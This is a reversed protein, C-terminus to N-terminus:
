KSKNEFIKATSDDSTTLVHNGDPFVSISLVEASHGTFVDLLTGAKVDCMYVAGDTAGVFVKNNSGSKMVTVACEIRAQHRLVFKGLQWVCLQGSLSGTIIVGLDNNFLAAEIETEGDLMVSGISRGDLIKVVQATPATVALAGDLSIDLSTISRDSDTNTWLPRAEKIDWLRINGDGYGVLLQKGNPVVKACTTQVNSPSPLVKCNGSPIQWIYVDGSHCGCFLVNAMPHWMLWEMDDGEFCWLLKKEKCSWVQILGAMDGTAFLQDNHNFCVETVSDKHGTCEFLVEGNSVDWIYATDDESGTIAWTGTHNLASCFVSKTHRSFTFKSIDIIETEIQNQGDAFDDFVENDEDEGDSYIVEIEDNETLDNSDDIDM